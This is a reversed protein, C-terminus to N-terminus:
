IFLYININIFILLINQFFFYKYMSLIFNKSIFYTENLKKTAKTDWNVFLRGKKEELYKKLLLLCKYNGLFFFM